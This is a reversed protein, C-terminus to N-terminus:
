NVPAKHKAAFKLIRYIAKLSQPSKPEIILWKPSALFNSTLVICMCIVLSLACILLYGSKIEGLCAEKLLNLGQGLFGGVFLSWVFWAIFSAVSTSSADPMQDLGLPLTTVFCVCGGAVFISSGLCLLVWKLIHNDEWVLEQTILFLCNVVTAIFLLVTGVRFVKYNGLKADALWGSLPAAVIGTLGPIAILWKLANPPSNPLHFMIDYVFCYLSSCVIFILLTWLLVLSAGKSSFWRIRYKCKM